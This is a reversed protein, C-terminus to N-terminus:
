AVSWERLDYFQAKAPDYKQKAGIAVRYDHIVIVDLKVGSEHTLTLQDGKRYIDRDSHFRKDNPNPM